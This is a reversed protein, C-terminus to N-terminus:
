KDYKNDTPTQVYMPVPSSDYYGYIPQMGPPTSIIPLQQVIPLMPVPMPAGSSNHGLTSRNYTNMYIDQNLKGGYSSAPRLMSEHISSAIANQMCAENVQNSWRLRCICIIIVVIAIFAVVGGVIGIILTDDTGSLAGISVNMPQEGNAHKVIRPDQTTPAVTWIIEPESNIPRSTRDTGVTAQETNASTYMVTSQKEAECSLQEEALDLLSRGSLSSPKNCLISNEAKSTLANYWKWIQKSECDCKVQINLGKLRVSSGREEFTSILASPITTLKSDSVDIEIRTSRPVPFLLSAPIADISTNKLGISLRSARIGVLLSSLVNKLREGRLSLSKLRPYARVSLQENGASLDKMEIDLIELNKMDKVIGRVDFYGLRPYDYALLQRLRKMNKFASKEIRTCNLLSFMKLVKLNEFGVLSHESIIGIDNGSVDVQKLTALSAFASSITNFSKLRNNSVLLEELMTTRELAHQEISELQNNSLNLHRLFPAELKTLRSIGCNAVNLTRLVKAENLLGAVAKESLSNESIDLLKVKNIVDQTFIESLRNRSIRLDSLHATQRELARIPIEAFRNGSLNISELSRVRSADLISEPLSSLRNDTLDFKELRFIGELMRENLTELRNRSLDLRQLQTSNHFALEEVSEILNSALSLERLRSVQSFTFEKVVTLRNNSLDLRELFQLTKILDNTFSTLRNGSLNVSRLRPHILFATTTMHELLNNSLDLVQLGTGTDFHEGRFVRLKNGSLNLSYLNVLGVFSGNGLETIANNSLDISSLNLHNKFTGESLQQLKNGTLSITELYELNLLLIAPLVQLGTRSVDLSLLTRPFVPPFGGYLPNDSINLYQLRQLHKFTEPSVKRLQNGALNLSVLNRLQLEGVSTLRNYSLDLFILTDEVGLFTLQSVTPIMNGSLDISMLKDFHFFLRAPLERVLNRTLSLSILRPVSARFIESSLAAIRNFELHLHILSPLRSLASSPVLLINNDQLSLWKLNTLGEFSSEEITRLANFSLDLQVLSALSSFVNAGLRDISNRSLDLVQLDQLDTLHSRELETILNNSINLFKLDKQYRLPETPFEELFNGSIDLQELSYAGKFVDSNLRSLDNHSVNLVLLNEMGLLAGDELHSLENDSLDLHLLTSGLTSFAGRQVSGINNGALGLVRMSTPGKLSDTPASTLNNYDLYLEELDTCGKFIGEEISRLGNYRLDLLRLNSAERFENSSFIPNLNDGLANNALRLEKLNQYTQLQRDMLHHVANGSLDLKELEKPLIRILSTPLSQHGSLRQSFSIIPQGSLSALADDALVMRDCNVELALM